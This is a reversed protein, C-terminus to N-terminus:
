KKTTQTVYGGQKTHNPPVYTNGIYGGQKSITQAQHSSVHTNGIYGGQKQITQWQYSSVYTSTTKTSTGSM